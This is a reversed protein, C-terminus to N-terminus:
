RRKFLQRKEFNNEFRGYEYGPLCVDCSNCNNVGLDEGFYALIMRRRCIDKEAFDRMYYMQKKLIDKREQTDAKDIFYEITKKDNKSYLLYCSSTKGDRGARGTEQYYGEMSKPLDGHIVYRIDPIDIGMGFAITACVVNVGKSTFIQQNKQRDESSMGAHYAVAKIGHYGLYEATEECKKRSARYVIGREGAHTKIIQAIEPIADYKKQRVEYTLNPRNFSAQVVAPNRLGFFRIINAQTEKTASATFAARPVDYSSLFNGIQLYAPRFDFGWDICHSEDIIISGVKIKTLIETFKSVEFREPAVYLVKIKGAELDAYIRKTEQYDVSQNICAAPIGRSVANKVQDLMLSILPSIVITVGEMLVAPLQFCLSKGAGTPLIALVDKGSVISTIIEEQKPRFSTYGFYKKLAEYIKNRM